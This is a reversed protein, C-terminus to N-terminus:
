YKVNELIKSEDIDERNIRKNQEKMKSILEERDMWMIESGGEPDGMRRKTQDFSVLDCLFYLTTKEVHMERHTFHAVISGTYAKLTAVIGFEEMLGRALCTEITENPEITERMLLYFDEFEGAAPHSFKKFYHCCIKGEANRVVGGISIHYPYEESRQFYNRTM